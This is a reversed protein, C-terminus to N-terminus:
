NASFLAYNGNSYSFRKWNITLYPNNTGSSIANGGSPKVFFDINRGNYYIVLQNRNVTYTPM